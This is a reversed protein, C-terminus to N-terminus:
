KSNWINDQVRVGQHQAVSGFNASPAPTSGAEHSDSDWTGVTIGVRLKLVLLAANASPSESM